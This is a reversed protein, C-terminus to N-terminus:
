TAVLETNATLVTTKQTIEDKGGVPPNAMKVETMDEM